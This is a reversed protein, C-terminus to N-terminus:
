QICQIMTSVMNEVVARETAVEAARLAAAREVARAVETLSDWKIGQKAAM